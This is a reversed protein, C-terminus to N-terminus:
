KKKDIKETEGLIKEFIDIMEKFIINLVKTISINTKFEIIVEKKLFSTIRYSAFIVNKNEQLFKSIINGTSSDENELLFEGEMIDSKKM